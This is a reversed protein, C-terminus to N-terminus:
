RFAPSYNVRRTSSASSSTHWCRSVCRRSWVKCSRSKKSHRATLRMDGYTTTTKNDFSRTLFTFPFEQCYPSDRPVFNDEYTGCTRNPKSSYLGSASLAFCFWVANYEAEISVRSWSRDGLSVEAKTLAGGLAGGGLLVGIGVFILTVIHIGRCARCCECCCM